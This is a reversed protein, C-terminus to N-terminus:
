SLVGELHQPGLNRQYVPYSYWNNFIQRTFNSEKPFNLCSVMSENGLVTSWFMPSLLAGFYVPVFEEEAYQESFTIKTYPQFLFTAAGGFYSAEQLLGSSLGVLSISSRILLEYSNGLYYPIDTNALHSLDQREKESFKSYYPHKLYYIQNARYNRFIEVLEKEYAKVRLLQGTESVNAYDFPAQGVYILCGNMDGLQENSGQRLSSQVVHNALVKSKLIELDREVTDLDFRSDNPISKVASETGRMCVFMDSCFRIPSWRVNLHIDSLEASINELWQPMEYGIVAVKSTAKESSSILEALTTRVKHQLELDCFSEVWLPNTCESPADSVTVVDKLAYYGDIILRNDGKMKKLAYKIPSFFADIQVDRTRTPDALLLILM